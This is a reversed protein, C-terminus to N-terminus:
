GPLLGECLRWAILFSEGTNKNAAGYYSHVSEHVIDAILNILEISSEALCAMMKSFDQIQMYAFACTVKERPEM